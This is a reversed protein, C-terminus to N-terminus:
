RRHAAQESERIMARLSFIGFLISSWYIMNIPIAMMGFKGLSDLFGDAQRMARLGIVIGPSLAYILAKPLYEGDTMAMTIYVIPLALLFSGVARRVYPNPAGCLLRVLNRDGANNSTSTM